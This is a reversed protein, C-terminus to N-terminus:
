DRIGGSDPGDWGGVRAGCHLQSQGSGADLCASPTKSLRETRLHVAQAKLGLSKAALLLNNQSFCQAPASVGVQRQLQKPDAPTGHFHAIILQCAHGHDDIVDPTERDARDALDSTSHKRASYM